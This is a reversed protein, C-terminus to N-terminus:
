VDGMVERRETNDAYDTSQILDNADIRKEWVVKDAWFVPGETCVRQYAGHGGGVVRISCGLCVGLACGMRNEM